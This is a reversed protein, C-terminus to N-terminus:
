AKGHSEGRKIGSAIIHAVRIPEPIVGRITSLKIIEKAEDIDIGSCKVFIPNYRTNVKYLEGSKIINWREEWDKFNKKLATKIKEFCPMNRTITIVPTDTSNYVDDIDVVNFGGLAVGDLLVAKLQKQYKSKKIMKKVIVTADSGDITVKEKLVCELYDGGRM